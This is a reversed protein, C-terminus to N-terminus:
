ISHTASAALLENAEVPVIVEVLTGPALNQLRLEGEFEAIRHKMGGIGVGLSGPRLQEIHEPIGKGDDRVSVLVRNGNRKLAVWANRAESHRFVNTLAEQVIRYLATELDISLRPFQLPEVELCTRIGSRKTFGDVYWEIGSRLGSEDLLPPHLLYSLSRLTKIAGDIAEAAQEVWNKGEAREVSRMGDIAMKAAALDQGVSDHLERAIRRREDDQANVVRSSLARMEVNQIELQRTKRYLEAFVRVKARLLEPVVPVTVYDLAGHEYGKLRDLDTLHTASVFVINTNRCRPHEHIMNALHFGDVEPMNVDMLVLAVNTKLLCDLAQNASGAKLLNEGLDALIAEYTLLKGPQDDVMLINVKERM